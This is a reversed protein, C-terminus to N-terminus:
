GCKAMRRARARRAQFQIHNFDDDVGRFASGVMDASSLAVFRIAASSSTAPMQRSEDPDVGGVEASVVAPPAGPPRTRPPAADGLDPELGSRRTWGPARWRRPGCPPSGIRARGQAPPGRGGRHPGASLSSQLTSGNAARTLSPMIQPRPATSMFSMSAMIRATRRSPARPCGAAGRGPRRTRRRRPPRRRIAGAPQHVVVGLEELAGCLRDALDAAEGDVTPPM